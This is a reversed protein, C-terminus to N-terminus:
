FMGVRHSSINQTILMLDMKGMLQNHSERVKSDKTATERCEGAQRVPSKQIRSIGQPVAPVPLINGFTPLRAGSGEGEDDNNGGRSIGAHGRPPQLGVERELTSRRTITLVDGRM